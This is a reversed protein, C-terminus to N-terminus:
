DTEKECLPCDDVCEDAGHREAIYETTGEGGPLPIFKKCVCALAAFIDDYDKGLDDSHNILHIILPRLTGCTGRKHCLNCTKESSSISITRKAERLCTACECEKHPKYGAM